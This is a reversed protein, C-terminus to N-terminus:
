MSIIIKSTQNFDSEIMLAEKTQNFADAFYYNKIVWNGEIKIHQDIEKRTVDPHFHLRSIANAHKSLRDEILIQREEFSWKRTHYINEKAYGDHTAEICNDSENLSIVSARNGVRFGGWVDSQNKGGVEVTNHSSTAREIDRRPSVEYTSLGSDVIFPRNDIRLEFNFTDAHAHGPIYDPGIKGIDVFCEYNKKSVKRYGSGSLKLSRSAVGLRQAYELLQKSTPAIGNASDNFLPIDGNSYSMNVLWGLMIEAKSSLLSLLEHDKWDNNKVLNILDLVRFLMIQHYMPSLEFHGGDDLIQEELEEVLIKRSKEYMLEDHFYYAGFLLSFANELLHNGLLHYEIKKLLTDYQAYLSDDVQQNKIKQQSLFKIWNMGRLSIPFPEMGDRIIESNAIFSEILMLGDKCSDQSLYDFYNLNYTWLKGYEAFNWDIQNFTYSLNLFNFKKDGFYTDAIHISKQLELPFSSSPKILVKEKQAKSEWFDRCVYYIRYFIQQPRLFKITNFLRIYRNYNLLM